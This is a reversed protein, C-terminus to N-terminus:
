GAEQELKVLAELCQALRKDRDAESVIIGKGYRPDPVLQFIGSATNFSFNIGVLGLDRSTVDEVVGNFRLMESNMEIMQGKRYLIGQLLAPMQRANVSLTISGRKQRLCFRRYDFEFDWPMPDGATWENKKITLLLSDSADYLDLSLQLRGDSDQDLALLPTGDVAIKFGRGVLDMSGVRIAVGPEKIFLIGEVYGNTINLPREKWRRQAQESLAGVSAAHHHNPCLVMMHMPNHSKAIAWDVIHHYEYVPNGCIGCGFGAEQRLQRKIPEPIDRSQTKALPKM